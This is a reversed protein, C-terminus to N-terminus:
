LAALDERSHDALGLTALTRKQEAAFDRELLISAVQIVADMAPTAVGLRRALDTLFILTYGVDEVLYRHDLRDQAKIGKFGPATSYGTSYTEERMYGQMVGMAPESPVEHGLAEGIAMRESDVARMLRGVGPTVGDEYFNFAGATREILAANTITVAPHIVPNGNKLTTEFVSGAAHIGPYVERLMEHLRRTGSRPAAAVALGGQLKLYVTIGAPETIRVAYPLTSTEGVTCRDDDLALGVAQKFVVSGLCSTPCVVVAQGDHLSPAATRALPETSYAPGVLFVLDTGAVARQADHGAYSIPAFGTLVGSSTLGGRDQVAAVEGPHDDSGYLRVEHGHQAWDFAVGCGGSGAGLVAVKM